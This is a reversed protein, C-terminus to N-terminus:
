VYSHMGGLVLNSFYTAVVAIFGIILLWAARNGRWDRVVRAHLYGGYLLWTVLAASEKPDWGWYRGWAIDAWIMGLILMATLLPFTVVTAKYGIEDLLEARPLRPFRPKLLYMVAAGFSVASAGSALIATMVHTTLLLHNQLAPILPNAEASVTNAYLLLGSAVPLVALSLARVKYKWEFIAYVLVIGWAFSVAFEYQNSFPGHGVAITRTILAGSLTLVALQVFRTGLGAMNMGRAPKAPADAEFDIPSLPSSPVGGAPVKVAAKVPRKVSRRAGMVVVDLLLALLVLALSATVLFRSAELM